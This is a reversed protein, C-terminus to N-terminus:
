EMLRLLIALRYVYMWNKRFLFPSRTFGMIETSGRAFGSLLIGVVSFIRMGECWEDWVMEISFDFDFDFWVVLPGVRAISRGLPMGGIWTLVLPCFKPQALRIGGRSRTLPPRRGIWSKLTLNKLSERDKQPFTLRLLTISVSRQLAIVAFRFPKPPRWIAISVKLLLFWIQGVPPIAPVSPLRMIARLPVSLSVLIQRGSPSPLATAKCESATANSSKTGEMMTTRVFPLTAATPNYAQSGHAESVQGTYWSWARMSATRTIKRSGLVSHLEVYLTLQPGVFGLCQLHM